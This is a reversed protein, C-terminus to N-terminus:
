RLMDRLADLRQQWESKAREIDQRSALKVHQISVASKAEGKATFYFHAQTGDSWDARISKDVTSTRIRELGHPLWKKRHRASAFMQYLTSVGVPYTRSKNASYEGGGLQGVDRMCRIREYGVTVTQAWWPGVGFDTRLLKAIAPHKLTHADVADLAAVWQAWTKGTKTRVADDSMGALTPWDKRPAASTLKPAAKKLLSARAATYSEGTKAMRARVLKKQDKNKPM